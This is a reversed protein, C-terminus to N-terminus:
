KVLKLQMQKNCNEIEIRLSTSPQWKSIFYMAEEFKSRPVDKYSSIGFHNHMDKWLSRFAQGSIQKYANSEKGGLAKMAISKGYYNMEKEQKSDMRMTDHLINVKEEIADVREATEENAQMILLLQERASFKKHQQSEIFERMRKFEQIFKVKMKMAEPTVYSMAVLTFGDETMKFKPYWQKNQSHQYQTEQFNLAGWESEGADTLKSIQNKIDNTVNFHEKGFVEAITVSDTVVQKNEIFVLQNM